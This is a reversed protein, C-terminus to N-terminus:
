RDATLPPHGHSPPLDFRDRIVSLPVGVVVGALEGDVVRLYAPWAGVNRVNKRHAVLVARKQEAAASEEIEEFLRVIAPWTRPVASRTKVELFLTPHLTDSRTHRSNGGSLPTRVSGLFAAVCREDRKWAADPTV